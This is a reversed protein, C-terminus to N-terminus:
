SLNFAKVEGNTSLTLVQKDATLPGALMPSGVKARAILHGDAESLFHLYGEADGIALTNGNIVTPATLRRNLLKRQRWQVSGDGKELAWVQGSADTVSVVSNNVALGSYSSLKHSWYIRGSNLGVKAIEGQYTAVYVNGGNIIPDADIDVMRTIESEGSPIAITQQWLMQGNDENLAVLRGDSFGAVVIDDAVRVRSSGRLILGPAGHRYDWAKSGDALSLAFLNGDISKVFVKDGDITPAAFAQNSIGHQWLQKGNSQNFAVVKGDATAVIVKNGGVGPGSSLMTKTDVSWLERGTKANISTLKGDRNAVYMVGKSYAPAFKLQSEANGNGASDSWAQAVQQPHAIKTLKAPKPLNNHSTFSSCASLSVAAVGLGILKVYSKM